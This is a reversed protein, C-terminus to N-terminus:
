SADAARHLKGAQLRLSLLEQLRQAGVGLHVPQRGQPLRMSPAPEDIWGTPWEEHVVVRCKGTEPSCAALELINQRRNTATSRAAGQRRAVLRRRLRLPRRRRERVAQRRARRRADDEQTAVDYVFLDVVPNPVGPKPYAEVDLTDQVQTQNSRRPLLRPGQERRLPLLRAEQRRAVVVDRHAAGAGRRLGLERHRVQHPGERQRRHHDRRRNSGDADSLWVNRDRYFAKLKRDPSEASDFQRGRAPASGAQGGRGRGGGASAARRTARRDTAQKTAVDYRYRKGDLAYEFSTGDDKWQVTSSGLKVSGPIERSMKPVPRLRADDQPSGPRRAADLSLLALALASMSRLAFVKM